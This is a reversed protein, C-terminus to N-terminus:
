LVKFGENEIVIKVKDKSVKGEDCEMQIIGSESNAKVKNIGELDLLADEVLMECSKCHMGKTKIEINVM